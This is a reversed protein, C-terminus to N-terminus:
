SYFGQQRRVEYMIVGAAVSVNFSDINGSSPITVLLDCKERVLRHMGKGESGLVIAVRGQFGTKDIRTGGLEAGFIWFGNEKLQGIAQVLNPIVLQKAHMNAGSSTLTVTQSDRASRREPIIVLDCSFQDASRLIAGFNHPDTISDLVLVLSNKVRITDLFNKLNGSGRVEHSENMVCLLAGRHKVPDCYQDLTTDSVRKVPVKGAHALDILRTIRGKDKSVLLTSQIGGRKLIEEIAHYGHIYEQM